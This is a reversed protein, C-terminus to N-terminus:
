LSFTYPTILSTNLPQPTSTNLRQPTSTNLQQPTSSNLRQPTSTNFQQPTSANFSQLTSTNLARNTPSSIPSATKQTRLQRIQNLLSENTVADSIRRHPDSDGLRTAVVGSPLNKLEKRVDERNETFSTSSTTSDIRIRVLEPSKNQRLDGAIKFSLIQNQIQNLDLNGISLKRTVTAKSTPEETVIRRIPLEVKREIRVTAGTEKYKELVRAAIPHLFESQPISSTNLQQATSTNLQQPTSSNLQQYTSSNLQQYTSTNLQQYTSQNLTLPPSYTTPQFVTANYPQSTTWDRESLGAVVRNQGNLFESQILEEVTPRDEPELSLAALILKKAEFPVNKGEFSPPGAEIAKLLEECESGPFPETGVLMEYLLVGLSWVDSKEDQFESDLSEPSMYAFTGARMNRYESTEKVDVSWGFDCLKVKGGKDLLLNEPKLDRIIFGMDHVYQVGLLTERYIRKVEDLPLPGNRTMLGYLAGGECLELVMYVFDREGFFDLLKLVHPHDFQLHIGIEHEVNAANFEYLQSLDVCKVAFNQGTPKHQALHVQSFGGEGIKRLFLFDSIGGLPCPREPLQLSEFKM